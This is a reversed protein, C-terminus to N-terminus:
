AQCRTFLYEIFDGIAEAADGGGVDDVLRIRFGAAAGGALEDVHAFAKLNDAGEENQGPFLSGNGVM